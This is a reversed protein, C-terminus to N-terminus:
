AGEQIKNIQIIKNYRNNRKKGSKLRKNRHNIQKNMM